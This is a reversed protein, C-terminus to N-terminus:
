YLDNFGMLEPVQFLTGCEPCSGTGMMYTVKQAVSNMGRDKATDYLWRVIGTLSEPSIAQLTTQQKETRSKKIEAIASHETTYVDIEADCHSCYGYYGVWEYGFYEFVDKWLVYGKLPLMNCLLHTFDMRSLNPQQLDEEILRVLTDIEKQYRSRTPSGSDIRTSTPTWNDQEQGPRRLNAIDEGSIIEVALWILNARESCYDWQEAIRVIDPLAAFSASFVSGQHYLREWLVDLIERDRSTELEKLLDPLYEASGGGVDSVNSWDINTEM